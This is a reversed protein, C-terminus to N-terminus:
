IFYVTFLTHKGNWDISIFKVMSYSQTHVFLIQEKCLNGLTPISYFEFNKMILDRQYQDLRLFGNKRATNHTEMTIIHYNSYNWLIQMFISKQHTPWSSQHKCYLLPIRDTTFFFNISDQGLVTWYVMKCISQVSTENTQAIKNIKRNIIIFESKM